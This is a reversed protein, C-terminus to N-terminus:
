DFRIKRAVKKFFDRIWVSIAEKDKLFPAVDNKAKEFDFNEIRHDLLELFKEKSFINNQLLHGSQRMMNELHKLNLRTNNRILWVFDYCDCGKVRTKWKRCLVAHMKGAFLSPATYTNVSFAIPNLLYKAETEFGSPAEIDVEIKVKLTKHRSLKKFLRSPSEITILNKLTEAKIFASEINSEM